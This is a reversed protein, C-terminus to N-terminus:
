QIEYFIYFSIYLSLINDTPDKEYDNNILNTMMIMAIM